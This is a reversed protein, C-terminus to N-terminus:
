CRCRWPTGRGPYPELPELGAAIMVAVAVAAMAQKKAAARRARAEQRAAAM